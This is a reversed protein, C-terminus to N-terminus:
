RMSMVGCNPQAAFWLPGTACDVKRANSRQVDLTWQGGALCQAPIEVRRKDLVESGNSARRARNM